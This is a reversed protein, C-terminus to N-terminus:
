YLSSPDGALWISNDESALLAGLSPVLEPAAAAATAIEELPDAAPPPAITSRTALFAVVAACAGAAVPLLWKARLRAVFGPKPEAEARVTRMVNAAFFASAKPQRAKGLLNWLEDQEEHNMAAFPFRIQRPFNRINEGSQSFLIWASPFHRLPLHLTSLPTALRLAEALPTSIERIAFCLQFVGGAVRWEGHDTM